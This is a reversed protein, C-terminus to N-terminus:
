CTYANYTGTYQRVHHQENTIHVSINYLVMSGRIVRKKWIYMASKLYLKIQNSKLSLQSTKFSM